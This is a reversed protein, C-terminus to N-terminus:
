ATVSRALEIKKALSQVYSEVLYQLAQLTFGEVPDCVFGWEIKCGLKPDENIPFVRVTAVYSKFGLNNDLVQYSLSRQLPDITLLKEKAWNVTPTVTQADGGSDGGKVAAACYRILGPQGPIGEVRYSTDIPIWKHINCFDEIAPWVSEADTGALEVMAKGEWKASSEEAM